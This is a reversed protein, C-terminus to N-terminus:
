DERYRELKLPHDGFPIWHFAKPSVFVEAILGCIPHNLQVDRSTAACGCFVFREYGLVSIQVGSRIVVTASLERLGLM